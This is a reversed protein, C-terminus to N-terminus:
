RGWRLRGSALPAFLAAFLLLSLSFGAFLLAVLLAGVLSGLGAALAARKSRRRGVARRTSDGAIPGLILALLLAFLLFRLFSIAIAGVAGYLACVLAIRLDDSLHADFFQLDQKKVCERCRYGVPTHVACEHCIYRDCRNCRLSTEHYPHVACVTASASPGGNSKVSM